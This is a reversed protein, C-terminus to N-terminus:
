RNSERTNDIFNELSKNRADGDDDDDDSTHSHSFQYNTVSPPMIVQNHVTSSNALARFGSCSPMNKSGFQFPRPSESPLKNNGFIFSPKLNNSFNLAETQSSSPLSFSCGGTTCNKINLNNSNGIPFKSIMQIQTNHTAKQIKNPVIYNHEKKETITKDDTRLQWPSISYSDSPKYANEHTTISKTDYIENTPDLQHLTTQHIRRLQKEALLDLKITAIEQNLKVIEKASEERISRLGVLTMDDLQKVRELEKIKESFESNKAISNQLVANQNSYKLKLDKLEHNLNDINKM